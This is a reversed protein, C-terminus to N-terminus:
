RSCKASGSLRYCPRVEFRALFRFPWLSLHLFSLSLSMFLTALLQLLKVIGWLAYVLPYLVLYLISLIIGIASGWAM